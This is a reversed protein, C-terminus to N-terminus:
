KNEKTAMMDANVVERRKRTRDSRMELGATYFGASTLKVTIRRNGPNEWYWGHIGTFPAVLSGEASSKNSKDYSQEPANNGPEGHFDHIVAASATWSFVISAGEALDYKYELYDYPDIVFEVVDLKYAAGYQTLAGSRMVATPALAAAPPEAMVGPTSMGLIGLAAGTGLPDMGFEAPLVAAVFAAGAGLIAATSGAALKGYSPLAAVPRVTSESSM